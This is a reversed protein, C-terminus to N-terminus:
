TKEALWEALQRPNDATIKIRIPGLPSEANEECFSVHGSFAVQKNLCFSLTNERISRFLMKRAADRIRDNRLIKRLRILSDLGKAETTLLWAKGSPKITFSANALINAAATRVKEESETPNIDAELHVSIEAM